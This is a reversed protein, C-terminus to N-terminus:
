FKLCKIGYKKPMYKRKIHKKRSITSHCVTYVRLLLLRITTKLTQMHLKTLFKPTRFKLVNATINEAKNLNAHTVSIIYSGFSQTETTQILVLTLIYRKTHRFTHMKGEKEETVFRYSM